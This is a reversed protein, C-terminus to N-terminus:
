IYDWDHLCCFCYEDSCSECVNVVKSGSALALTLAYTAVSDCDACKVSKSMQHGRTTPLELTADTDSM